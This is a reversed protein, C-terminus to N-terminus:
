RRDADRAELIQSSTVRTPSAEKHKRVEELWERASLRAADQEQGGHLLEQTNLRSENIGDVFGSRNPVVRFASEDNTESDIYLMVEAGEELDLKDLPTLVGNSFTARLKKAM